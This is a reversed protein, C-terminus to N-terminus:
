GRISSRTEMERGPWLPPPVKTGGGGGNRPGRGRESSDEAMRAWEEGRVCAVHAPGGAPGCALRPLGGGSGQCSGRAVGDEGDVCGARWGPRRECPGAVRDGGEVSRGHEHHREAGMAHAVDEGLRVEVARVTGARPKELLSVHVRCAVGHDPGHELQQERPEAEHDAVQEQGRAQDGRCRHGCRQKEPARQKRPADSRREREERNQEQGAVRLEEAVAPRGRGVRRRDRELGRGQPRQEARAGLRPWRERAREGGPEQRREREEGAVVAHREQRRPEQRHREAPVAHGRPCPGSVREGKGAAEEGRHRRPHRERRRVAARHLELEVVVDREVHERARLADHPVDVLAVELRLKRRRPRHQGAIGRRHDRADAEVQEVM